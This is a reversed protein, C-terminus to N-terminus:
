VVSKRDQRVVLGAVGQFARMNGHRAGAAVRYLAPLDGIMRRRRLALIAVLSRVSIQFRGHAAIGAVGHDRPFLASSEIVALRLERQPPPVARHVAQSAVLRLHLISHAVDGEAAGGFIAGSAMGVHMAALELCGPVFLSAGAAVRHHAPSGRFEVMALMRREFEVASVLPNRAPQAVVLPTVHISVRGHYVLPCGPLALLTM